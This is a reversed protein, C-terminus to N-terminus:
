AISQLSAADGPTRYPAPDYPRSCSAHISECSLSPVGDVNM